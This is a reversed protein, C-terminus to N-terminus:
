RTAALEATGGLSWAREFGYGAATRAAQDALYGHTCFFFLPRRKPMRELLGEVEEPAIPIAAPVPSEAREQRDRLDFLLGGKSLYPAAFSFTCRVQEALFLPVTIEGGGAETLVLVDGELRGDSLGEDTVKRARVCDPCDPLTILFGDKTVLFVQRGKEEWLIRVIDGYERVAAPATRSRINTETWVEGGRSSFVHPLGKADTGALYLMGATGAATWRCAPFFGRYTENFDFAATEEDRELVVPGNGDAPLRIETKM